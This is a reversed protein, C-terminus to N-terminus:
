SSAEDGSAPITRRWLMSRMVEVFGLSHYLTRAKRRATESLVSAREAGLAECAVCGRTASPRPSAAGAIIRTPASRSSCGSARDADYWVLCFAAFTGGDAVAVVDFEPRYTPAEM